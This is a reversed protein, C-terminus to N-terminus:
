CAGDVPLEKPKLILIITETVAIGKQQVFFNKQSSAKKLGVTPTSEQSVEMASLILGEGGGM